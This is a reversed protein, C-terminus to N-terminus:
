SCCWKVFVIGIVDVESVTLEASDGVICVGGCVLTSLV